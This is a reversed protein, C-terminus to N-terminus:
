PFLSRIWRLLPLLDVQPLLIRGETWRDHLIMQRSMIAGNREFPTMHSNGELRWNDPTFLSGPSALAQPEDPTMLKRLVLSRLEPHARLLSDIGAGPKGDKGIELLLNELLLSERQLLKGVDQMPRRVEQVSDRRGPWLPAALGNRATSDPTAARAFAGPSLLILLLAIM